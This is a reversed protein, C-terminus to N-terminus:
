AAAAGNLVVLSGLALLGGLALFGIAATRSWSQPLRKLLLTSGGCVLVSSALAGAWWLLTNGDHPAELGHLMAHIAVGLGVVGGSINTLLRPNNGWRLRGAALTLAAVASIALPALLEAGPLSFGTLGLGAGTAAGVLAWVLLQASIFSAATGVTMLMVLHDLGGLPHMFGGLAGGAALGHAHAPSATILAAGAALAFLTATQRTM